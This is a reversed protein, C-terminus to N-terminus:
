EHAVPRTAIAMRRRALNMMSFLRAAKTTGATLMAGRLDTPPNSYAGPGSHVRVSAGADLTYGAPFDYWQDGVVSHIRWGTMDQAAAGRNTIQVYEDSTDYRLAEIHLDSEPIPPYNRVVLPLYVKTVACAEDVHRLALLVELNEFASPNSFGALKEEIVQRAFPCDGYEAALEALDAMISPWEGDEWGPLPDGTCPDYAAAISSPYRAKYWSLIRQGTEWLATDGSVKADAGARRALDLATLSSTGGRYM